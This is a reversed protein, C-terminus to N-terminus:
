KGVEVAIERPKEEEKKPLNIYLIGNEFNAKVNDGQIDNPLEISRSFSGAGRESRLAVSGEPLDVCKKEGEITLINGKVTLKTTDKYAGPMEARLLYGDGKDILDILPYKARYDRSYPADEFLNNIAKQLDYIEQFPNWWRYYRM